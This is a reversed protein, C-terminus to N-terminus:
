LVQYRAISDLLWSAPVLRLPASLDSISSQSDSPKVLKCAAECLKEIDSDVNKWDGPHIVLMSEKDVPESHKQLAQLHFGEQPKQTSTWPGNATEKQQVMRLPTTLVPDPEALVDVDLDAYECAISALRFATSVDRHHVTAGASMALQILEDRTPNPYSFQGMLCM